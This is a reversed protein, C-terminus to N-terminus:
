DMRTAMPCARTSPPCPQPQPPPSYKKFYCPNAAHNGFCDPRAFLSQNSDLIRACGYANSMAPWVLVHRHLLSTDPWWKSSRWHTLSLSHLLSLRTRALLSPGPNEDDSSSQPSDSSSDTIFRRNHSYLASATKAASGLLGRQRLPMPNPDTRSLKTGPWTLHGVTTVHRLVLASSLRNARLPVAPHYTSPMDHRAKMSPFACSIDYRLTRCSTYAHRLRPELDSLKVIGHQLLPNMHIGPTKGPKSTADSLDAHTWLKWAVDQPSSILDGIFKADYALKREKFSPCNLGGHSLPASLFSYPMHSYPGRVFRCIASNIKNLLPRPIGNCDLLYYCRSLLLAKALLARNLLSAGIANWQRVIKRIHSYIQSWRDAAYNPSGVWAGLVRLPLGSRFLM